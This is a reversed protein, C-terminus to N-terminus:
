ANNQVPRPWHTGVVDHETVGKRLLEDVAISMMADRDMERGDLLGAEFRLVSFVVGGLGRMQPVLALLRNQKDANPLFRYRALIMETILAAPPSSAFQPHSRLRKWWAAAWRGTSGPTGIWMFGRRIGM